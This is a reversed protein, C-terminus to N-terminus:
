AHPEPRRLFASIRAAFYVLSYRVVNLAVGIGYLGPIPYHRRFLAALDHLNRHSRRNGLTDAFQRLTMAELRQALSSREDDIDVTADLALYLPTQARRCRLYFDHDAGYHPLAEEDFLGVREFVARPILAGRGGIILDVPLLREDGPKADRPWRVERTPFGLLFGPTVLNALLRGDRANRQLPAVICPAPAERAHRLLRSLTDPAVYCDNNLLVFATAGRKLGEQVGHNVAGTWWLEPSAACRIV